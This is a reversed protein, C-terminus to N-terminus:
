ADLGIHVHDTLTQCKQREPDGNLAKDGDRRIQWGNETGCLVERNAFATVEADTMCSPVCVQMSLGGHRIVQSTM